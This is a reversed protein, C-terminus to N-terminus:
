LLDLEVECMDLHVTKAKSEEKYEKLIKKLKEKESKKIFVELVCNTDLHTVNMEDSWSAACTGKDAFSGFELLLKEKVVKCAEKFEIGSCPLLICAKLSQEKKPSKLKKPQVKKEPTAKKDTM